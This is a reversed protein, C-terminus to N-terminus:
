GQAGLVGIQPHRNPITHVHVPDGGIGGRPTQDGLHGTAKIDATPNRPIRHCTLSTAPDSDPLHHVAGLELKQGAGRM